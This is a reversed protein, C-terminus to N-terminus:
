QLRDAFFLGIFVFVWIVSGLAIWVYNAATLNSNGRGETDNSALNIARQAKLFVLTLPLLLVVSAFDLAGITEVRSAIRDLVNSIVLLVVMVTAHTDPNWAFTKGAGTIHGQVRRLLAHIFFVSFIARAVPWLDERAAVKYNSWNKYFWYLAYTGLTAVYLIVFKRPGVVYYPPAEAAMADTVQAAPPAYPNDNM